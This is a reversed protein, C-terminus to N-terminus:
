NPLEKFAAITKLVRNQIVKNSANKPVRTSFIRKGSACGEGYVCRLENIEITVTVNEETGNHRQTPFIVIDRGGKEWKTYDSSYHHSGFHNLIFGHSELESKVMDCLENANM